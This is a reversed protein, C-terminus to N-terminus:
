VMEEGSINAPGSESDSADVVSLESGDDQSVTTASIGKLRPSTAM